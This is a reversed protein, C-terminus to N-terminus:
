KLFLLCGRGARGQAGGEGAAARDAGSDELHGPKAEGKRRGLCGKDEWCRTVSNGFGCVFPSSIFTCDM